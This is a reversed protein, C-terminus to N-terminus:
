KGGRRRPKPPTVFVEDAEVEVDIGQLEYVFSGRRRRFKEVVTQKGRAYCQSGPALPHVMQVTNLPQEIPKAEDATSPPPPSNADSHPVVASPPTPATLLLVEELQEAPSPPTSQRKPQSDETETKLKAAPPADQPAPSADRVRKSSAAPLPGGTSVSASGPSNKISQHKSRLAVIDLKQIPLDNQDLPPDGPNHNSIVAERRLRESEWDQAILEWNRRGKGDKHTEGLAMILKTEHTTFTRRKSAGADNNVKASPEAVRARKAEGITMSRAVPAPTVTPAIVDASSDDDDDDSDSDGCIPVSLETHKLLRFCSFSRLLFVPYCLIQLSVPPCVGAAPLVVLPPYKPDASVLVVPCEIITAVARFAVYAGPHMQMDAKTCGRLAAVALTTPNLESSRKAIQGQIYPAYKQSNCQMHSEILDLVLQPTRGDPAIVELVNEILTEKEIEAFATPVRKWQTDAVLQTLCSASDPIVIPPENYSGDRKLVAMMRSLSQHCWTPMGDITENGNYDEFMGIIGNNSEPQMSPFPLPQVCPHGFMHTVSVYPVAVYRLTHLVRFDALPFNFRGDVVAGTDFNKRVFTNRHIAVRYFTSVAAGGNSNLKLKRNDEENKVSGRATRVKGDACNEILLTHNTPDSLCGNRVHSLHLKWWDQIVQNSAIDPSNAYKEMVQTLHLELLQPLPLFKANQPIERLPTQRYKEETAWHARFMDQAFQRAVSSSKNVHVFLRRFAHFVDLKVWTEAGFVKRISDGFSGRGCCNDVYVGVPSRRLTRQVWKFLVELAAYSETATWVVAVVYHRENLLTYASRLNTGLIRKNASFVHDGSLIASGALHAAIFRDQHPKLESAM